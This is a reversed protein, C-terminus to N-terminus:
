DDGIAKMYGDSRVIRQVLDARRLTPLLEALHERLVELRVRESTLELLHQKQDLSLGCKPAMLFSLTASDGQDELAHAPAETGYVIAVIDHYMSLCEQRLAAPAPDDEDEIMAVEAVTYLKPAPTMELVRYRGTGEVIIDMRGDDYTEVVRAISTLCGVPHLHGNEILNIGFPSGGERCESILARYRPEFIHLPLRTGPFLVLNLPFLGLTM